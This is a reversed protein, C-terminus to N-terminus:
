RRGRTLGLDLLYRASAEVAEFMDTDCQDLEVVHWEAHKAAALVAPIDVNGEGAAVMAQAPDDAPGDKVHLRRAREGLAGVFQAPDVGGVQVWYVDVEAFVRLDCAAFFRELAPVGDVLTFEWYHNHYGVTVGHEAAIVAMADIHDAGRAIAAADAFGDVELFPLVIEHCGARALADLSEHDPLGTFASIWELGYTELVRALEEPAMDYTGMTEVGAYGADAVRRLAAHLDAAVADRITYLQLGLRPQQSAGVTM